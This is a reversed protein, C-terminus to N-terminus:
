MGNAKIMSNNLVNKELTYRAINDSIIIIAEMWHAPGGTRIRSVTSLATFIKAM